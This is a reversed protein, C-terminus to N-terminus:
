PIDRVTVVSGFTWLTLFMNDGFFPDTACFFNDGFIDHGSAHGHCFFAAPVSPLLVYPSTVMNEKEWSLDGFLDGVHRAFFATALFNGVRRKEWFSTVLSTVMMDGRGRCCTPWRSSWTDRLVCGHLACRWVVNRRHQQQLWDQAVRGSRHLRRARMPLFHDELTHDNISGRFPSPWDNVSCDTMIASATMSVTSSLVNLPHVSVYSLLVFDM